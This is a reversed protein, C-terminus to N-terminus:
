AQEEQDWLDNVIVPVTITMVRFETGGEVLYGARAGLPDGFQGLLDIERVLGDLTFDGSYAAMLADLAAMLNPDIMERPETLMGTYLRVYFALRTSTSDLGSGGRAPGIQEVWMACTIGSTDPPSAPEVGNVEEFYGTTLAHSQLADLVGRIDLSM